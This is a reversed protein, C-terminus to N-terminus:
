RSDSQSARGRKNAMAAPVMIVIAAIELAIGIGIMFGRLFDTAGSGLSAIHLSRTAVLLIPNFLLGVVLFAMGVPVSTKPYQFRKLLM